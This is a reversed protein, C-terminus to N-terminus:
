LSRSLRELRDCETARALAGCLLCLLSANVRSEINTGEAIRAVIPHASPSVAPTGIACTSVSPFRISALFVPRGVHVGSVDQRIWSSRRSPATPSSADSASDKPWIADMTVSERPM